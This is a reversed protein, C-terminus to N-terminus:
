RKQLGLVFLKLLCPGITPMPRPRNIKKNAVYKYLTGTDIEIYM